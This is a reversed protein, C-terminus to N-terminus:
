KIVYGTKSDQCIYNEFSLFMKANEPAILSSVMESGAESNFWFCGGCIVAVEALEDEKETVSMREGSSTTALEAWLLESWAWKLAAPPLEFGRGRLSRM